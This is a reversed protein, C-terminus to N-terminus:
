GLWAYRGDQDALLAVHRQLEHCREVAKVYPKTQTLTLTPNLTLTLTENLAKVYGRRM